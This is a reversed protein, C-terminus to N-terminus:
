RYAVTATLRSHSTDEAKNVGSVINLSNVASRLTNVVSAAQCVSVLPRIICHFPTPRCPNSGQVSPNFTRHESWASSGARPAVLARLPFAPPPKHGSENYGGALEHYRPQLDPSLTRKGQRWLVLLSHSIGLQKAIQRLSM